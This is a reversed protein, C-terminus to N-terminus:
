RGVLARWFDAVGELECAWLARSFGGLPGTSRDATIMMRPIRFRDAPNIPGDTLVVATSAGSDACIRVTEDNLDGIGGYPYAFSIQEDGLVQKVRLLSESIESRMDDASLSSLVPHTVSHAGFRIGARRLEIAQAWTLMSRSALKRVLAEAGCFALLSGIIEKRRAPQAQRIAADVARIALEKEARTRISMRGIGADPLEIESVTAHHLALMVWMIPTPEQSDICGTTLYVTAAVNHETLARHLPGYNDAYGDDVTVVAVSQMSSSVVHGTAFVEEPSQVSFVKGLYDMQRLFLPAPIAM